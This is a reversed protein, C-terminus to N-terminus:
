VKEESDGLALALLMPGWCLFSWVVAGFYAKILLFFVFPGLLILALIFYLVMLTSLDKM